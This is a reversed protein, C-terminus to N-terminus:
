NEFFERYFPIQPATCPSQGFKSLKAIVYRFYVAQKLIENEM